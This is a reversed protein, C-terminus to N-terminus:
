TNLGTLSNSTCQIYGAAAGVPKISILQHLSHLDIERLSKLRSYFLVIGPQFVPLSSTLWCLNSLLSEETTKQWAAATFLLKNKVIWRTLYLNFLVTVVISAFIVLMGWCCHQTIVTLVLLPRCFTSVAPKYLFSPASFVCM